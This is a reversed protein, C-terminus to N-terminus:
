QKLEAKTFLVSAKTDISTTINVALVSLLLSTSYSTLQTMM